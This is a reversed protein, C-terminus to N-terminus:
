TTHPIAMLRGHDSKEKLRRVRATSADSARGYCGNTSAQLFGGRVLDDLVCRCIAGHVGSLRVVQELTLRM